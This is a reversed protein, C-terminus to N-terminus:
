RAVDWRLLRLRRGAGDRETWAVYALPARNTAAVQPRVAERAGPVALREVLRRGSAEIRFLTLAGAALSDGDCAVLTGSMGADGVAVHLPETARTSTLRLPTATTDYREPASQRFWVGTRGPVGAFWAVRLTGDRAVEFGPGSRPCEEITWGDPYAHVPPGDPRALAVDCGGDEYHRRFAAFTSGTLDMGVAVRCCPCVQSWEAAVPAWTGGFDPSAAIHIRAGEGAVRHSTDGLAPNVLWAAVLRGEDTSYLDHFRQTRPVDTRGQHLTVPASWSTGRDLSRIFRLESAPRTGGPGEGGTAWLIAIRGQTDCAVRPTAEGQPELPEGPPSVAFPESWTAGRDTSRAFWVRLAASDGALWTLLVDNTRPDLAISPDRGISGPVGPPTLSTVRSARPACGALAALLGALLFAVARRPWRGVVNWGPRVVPM